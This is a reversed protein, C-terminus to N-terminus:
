IELLKEVIGEGETGIELHFLRARNVLPEIWRLNELWAHARDYHISNLMIAEWTEDKTAEYVTTKTKGNRKLLCLDIQEPYVADERVLNPDLQRLDLVYKTEDRVQEPSLLPALQPFHPLMDRRLKGRGVPFGTLQLGHGTTTVFIQSDSLLQFAGSLTLRLATTSKGANHPAMLLIVRSAAKSKPLGGSLSSKPINEQGYVLGTAHLMGFGHATLYNILLTNLLGRSILDPRSALEPTIVGTAVGARLDAFVNGWSGFHLNIWDGEGAYQIHQLPHEPPPGVDRVPPRVVFRVHYSSGTSNDTSPPNGHILRHKEPTDPANLTRLSGDAEFGFGADAISVRPPATSYLPVSFDAAALVREDNSALVVPCGSVAFARQFRLVNEQRGWFDELQSQYRNYLADLAM